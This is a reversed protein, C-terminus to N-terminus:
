DRWSGWSRGALWGGLGSGAARGQSSSSRGKSSSRSSSSSAAASAAASGGSSSSSSSAKSAAAAGGGGGSSSSSADASVWISKKNKDDWGWHGAGGDSGSGSDKGGGGAAANFCSPLHDCKPETPAGPPCAVRRWRAAMVGLSKDALKAFATYSMDHGSPPTPYSLLANLPLTPPAAALTQSATYSMGMHRRDGCCWRMNSYANSPYHCPCTDTIVVTVIKSEDFCEGKRRMRQGYGDTVDSNVCSVEYCRGCSGAYEPDTDSLAAIDLGTGQRRDLQGRRTARVGFMCSGEHVTSGGDNGDGAAHHECFTARGYTWERAAATPRPAAFAAALLALALLLTRPPAM